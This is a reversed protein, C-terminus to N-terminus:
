KLLAITGFFVIYAILAILLALVLFALLETPPLDFLVAFQGDFVRQVIERTTM